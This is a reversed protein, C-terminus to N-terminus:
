SKAMGLICKKLSPLILNIKEPQYAEVYIRLLPETGSPRILFWSGDELIVKAGDKKIVEKIKICAIETPAPAATEPIFKLGCYNGPNHSATFVIAGDKNKSKIAFAIAPTPTDRNVMLVSINKAENLSGM